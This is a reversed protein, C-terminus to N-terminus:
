SASHDVRVPQHTAADADDFGNPRNTGTLLSSPRHFEKRAIMFVSNDPQATAPDLFRNSRFFQTAQNLEIDVIALDNRLPPASASELEAVVGFDLTGNYPDDWDGSWDRLGLTGTVTVTNSLISTELRIEARGVHHDGSTFSATYGSLGAAAAVVARPFVLTTNPTRPGSGSLPLSFDLSGTRLEM